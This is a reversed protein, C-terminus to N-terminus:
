FIDEEKIISLAQQATIEGNKLRLIVEKTDPPAIPEKKYGLNEIVSELKNRVTPYSIKMEKEIAKINGRNKIFIEVFNLDEKSLKQFKSSYFEGEIVTDCKTCTLKTAILEGSCVPCSSIIDKKM